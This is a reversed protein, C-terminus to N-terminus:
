EVYPSDYETPRPRDFESLIPVRARKWTETILSRVTSQAEPSFDHAIYYKALENSIEKIGEFPYYGISGNKSELNLYLARFDDITVSLSKRM